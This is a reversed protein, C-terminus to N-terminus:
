KKVSGRAVGPNNGSDPNRPTASSGRTATAPKDKERREAGRSPHEYIITNNITQNVTNGSGDVYAEQNASQTTEQGYVPVQVFSVLAISVLILKHLM